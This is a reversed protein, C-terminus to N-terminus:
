RVRLVMSPTATGYVPTGQYSTGPIVFRYAFVGPKSARFALTARGNKIPTAKVNGWANGSWFQLMAASNVVPRVAVVATVVDNRNKVNGGAYGASMVALRSRSLSPKSASSTSLSGVRSTLPVYVRYSRTGAAIARLDFYGGLRTSGRGAEVWPGGAKSQAQLVVPLGAATTQQTVCRSEACSIEQQVTRGKVLMQSGFTWLTPAGAVTSTTRGLIEGGTLSAWENTARLQFFYPPRLNKVVQRTATTGPGVVRFPQGASGVVPVYLQSGAPVDLPDGPSFDQTPPPVKWTVVVDNGSPTAVADLPRLPGDTDFMPSLAAKSTVGATSTGIEIAIKYNGDPPFASTPISWTNPESAALYKVYSPGASLVGQISIRNPANSDKWSVQIAQRAKDAWGITVGTPIPDSSCATLLGAGLIAAAAVSVGTRWRAM